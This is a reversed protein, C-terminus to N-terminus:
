HPFSSFFFRDFMFSCLLNGYHVKVQSPGAVEVVLGKAAKNTMATSVKIGEKTAFIAKFSYARGIQHSSETLVAVTSQEASIGTAVVAGLNKIGAAHRIGAM